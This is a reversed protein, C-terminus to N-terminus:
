STMALPDLNLHRDGSPFIEPLSKVLDRRATMSIKLLCSLDCNWTRYEPYRVLSLYAAFFVADKAFVSFAKAEINM